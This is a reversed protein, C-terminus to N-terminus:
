KEAIKDRKDRNLERNMEVNSKEIQGRSNRLLKTM